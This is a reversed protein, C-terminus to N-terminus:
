FTPVASRITRITGVFSKAEQDTNTRWSYILTIGRVQTADVSTNSADTIWLWIRLRLDDNTNSPTNNIDFLKINEVVGTPTAANLITNLAPITTATSILLADSANEMEGSTNLVRNISRTLLTSPSGAVSGSVVSGSSTTYPLDAFEMNKIQEVYGQMVTNASSQYLSGETLKRSQILTALIGVSLMALVMAAIMVEVLTLGRSSRPCPRSPRRTAPVPM